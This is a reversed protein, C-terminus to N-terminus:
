LAQRLIVEVEQLLGPVPDYSASTLHTRGNVTAVGIVQEGLVQDLVLPGWIGTISPHVDLLGLNTVLADLGLAGRTMFREAEMSTFAPGSAAIIAAAARSVATGTRAPAIQAAQSRATDWFTGPQVLSRTVHIYLGQPDDSGFAAFLPRINIPSMVRVTPLQRAHAIVQGVATVVAAHVTTQEARSRSRVAETLAPDLALASVAPPRGDFPRITAPVKLRPDLPPPGPPGADIIARRDPDARLLVEREPPTPRAPRPSGALAAALDDAVAVATLGDFAEHAFTLVMTDSPPVLVIRFLAGNPLPHALEQAVIETWPRDDGVELHPEVDSTVFAPGDQRTEAVRANLLRHRPLLARVAEAVAEPTVASALQVVLCHHMPHANSWRHYMREQAGLPRLVTPADLPVEPSRTWPM